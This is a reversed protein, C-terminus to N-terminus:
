ERDIPKSNLLDGYNYVHTVVEEKESMDKDSIPWLKIYKDM